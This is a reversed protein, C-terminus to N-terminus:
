SRCSAAPPGAATSAPCGAGAPAPAARGAARTMPPTCPGPRRVRGTRSRGAPPGASRGTRGTRASGTMGSCRGGRLSGAPRAAASSAAPRRIRPRRRSGCACRRRARRRRRPWGRIGTRRRGAGPASANSRGYRRTSPGGRPAATPTATGRDQEVGPGARVAALARVRAELPRDRRDGADGRVQRVRAVLDPQDGVGADVDGGGAAVGGDEVVEGFHLEGCHPSMAFAVSVTRRLASPPRIM